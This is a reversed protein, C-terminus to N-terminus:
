RARHTAPRTSTGGSPPASCARSAQLHAHTHSLQLPPPRPPPPAKEKTGRLAGAGLGASIARVLTRRDYRQFTRRATSATPPPKAPGDESRPELKGAPVPSAALHVRWLGHLGLLCGLFSRFVVFAPGPRSLAAELGLPVAVLSPLALMGVARRWRYMAPVDGRTAGALSGSLLAVCSMATARRQSSQSVQTLLMYVSYFTAGGGYGFLHQALAGASAALGAALTTELNLM